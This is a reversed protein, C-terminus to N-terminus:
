GKKKELPIDLQSSNISDKWWQIHSPIRAIINGYYRRFVDAIGGVAALWFFTLQFRSSTCLESPYAIILKLCFSMCLLSCNPQLWFFTLKLCFYTCLLEGLRYMLTLFFDFSHLYTHLLYILIYDCYTGLYCLNLGFYPVSLFVYVVIIYYTAWHSNQMWWFPWEIEVKYFNGQIFNAFIPMLGQLFQFLTVSYAVTTGGIPLMRQHCPQDMKKQQGVSASFILIFIKRDVQLAIYKAPLQEPVYLELKEKESVPWGLLWCSVFRM